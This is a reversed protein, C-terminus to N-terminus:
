NSRDCAIIQSGSFDFRFGVKTYKLQNQIYHHKERPAVLLLCGGGGAGILKGGFAGCTRATLYADNIEKNSVKDSLGAKLQWYKDMLSGLKEWNKSYITNISEEALKMITWMQSSKDVLNNAYTEAITSATRPNNMYLLLLNDNLEEIDKASLALPMVSMVGTKDFRLVNLGGHAAWMQDQYGVTEQLLTQEVYIASYALEDAMMRQGKLASLANLMGVTFSSSSGVGCRGPLDSFHHIELGDDKMGLYSICAKIVRHEIEDINNVTEIKSYSLRTKYDHYPPLYRAVIYSYKNIAGGVCLGGNKQAWSPYDTGGGLFSLRNPTRTIIM